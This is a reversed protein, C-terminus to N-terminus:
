SRALQDIKEVASMHIKLTNDVPIRTRKRKKQAKGINTQLKREEKVVDSLPGRAVTKLREIQAKEFIKAMRNLFTTARRLGDKSNVLKLIKEATDLYAQRNKEKRQADMEHIVFTLRWLERYCFSLSQIMHAGDHKTFANGIELAKDRMKEDCHMCLIALHHMVKTADPGNHKIKQAFELVPETLLIGAETIRCTHAGSQVSEYGFKLLNSSNSWDGYNRRLDDVIGSGTTKTEM